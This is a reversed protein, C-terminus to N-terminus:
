GYLLAGVWKKLDKNFANYAM